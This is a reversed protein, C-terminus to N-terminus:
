IPSRIVLVGRSSCGSQTKDDTVILSGSDGGESFSGPTIVIQNIFLAVGNPSGYNVNVIANIAYVSGKTNSTTRGYKQVKQGVFASVHASNPTGYGDSPTSVGLDDTTTIAIAADIENDGGTFDIPEYDALTGIDDGPSSGGDYTGPQIV